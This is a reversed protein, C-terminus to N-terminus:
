RSVTPSSTSINPRFVLPLLPSPLLPLLFRRLTPPTMQARSSAVIDIARNPGLRALSVPVAVFPAPEQANLVPAMAVVTMVFVLGCILKRM